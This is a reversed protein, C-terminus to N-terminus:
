GRPQALVSTRVHPVGITDAALRFGRQEDKENAEINEQAHEDLWETRHLDATGEGFEAQRRRLRAPRKM